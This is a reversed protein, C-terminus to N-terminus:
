NNNQQVAFTIVETQGTTCFSNGDATFYTVLQSDSRTYTGTLTIDPDSGTTSCAIGGVDCSTVSNSDIDSCAAAQAPRIVTFNGDTSFNSTVISYLGACAASPTSTFGSLTIRTAMDESLTISFVINGITGTAGNCTVSAATYETENGNTTEDESCGMLGLSLTLLGLIVYRLM